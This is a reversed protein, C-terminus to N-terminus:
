PTVLLYLRSRVTRQRLKGVLNAQTDGPMTEPVPLFLQSMSRSRRREERKSDPQRVNHMVCLIEEKAANTKPDDKEHAECYGSLTLRL